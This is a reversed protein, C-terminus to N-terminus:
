KHIRLFIVMNKKDAAPVLSYCGLFHQRGLSSLKRVWRFFSISTGQSLNELQLKCEIELNERFRSSFGLSMNQEQNCFESVCEWPQFCLWWSWCSNVSGHTLTFTCTLSSIFLVIYHSVAPCCFLAMLASFCVCDQSEALQTVKVFKRLFFFFFKAAEPRLQPMYFRKRCSM